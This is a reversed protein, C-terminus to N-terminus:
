ASIDIVVTSALLDHICRHDERFIFLIDVLTYIPGVFPIGGILGNVVGRLLFTNVFSAPQGTNVDVMQTKMVFKGISQSRTALLYIQLVILAILGLFIVGLGVFFLPGPEDPNTAIGIISIVVGPGAFVLGSFGDVLSGLFRKGLDALRQQPPYGPVGMGGMGQAANPVAYPNYDNSM